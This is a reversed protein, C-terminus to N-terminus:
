RGSRASQQCDSGDSLLSWLATARLNLDPDRKMQWPAFCALLNPAAYPSGRIANYGARVCCLCPCTKLSLDISCRQPCLSEVLMGTRSLHTCARSLPQLHRPQRSLRLAV